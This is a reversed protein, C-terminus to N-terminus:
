GASGPRPLILTRQSPSTTGATLHIKAVDFWPLWGQRWHNIVLEGNLWMQIGSASFTQFQYDGTEGPLVDGEWRVSIDGRAPLAPNITRNPLKVQDDVDIDLQHDPAQAVLEAFQAGRYYGATLGGPQGAEDRLHAAPIATFPRLDGFRSYSPNDWLIGYGRSSQLFPIVITGNHQWLDLDYGKLNFLGLQQQGLGFLAEDPQALWQQGVHFVHEGQVTAPALERGGPKEAAILQGQRDYFSVDGTALAVRVELDDTTLRAIGDRTKVRWHGPNGSAPLVSRSPHQFFTRDPAAAVRVINSACVQITEFQGNVRFVIGNAVTEPAVTQAPSPHGALCLAAAVVLLIHSRRCRGASAHIFYM